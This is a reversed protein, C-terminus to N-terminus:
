SRGLFLEIGPTEAALRRLIPDLTERRVNLGEPLPEGGPESRPTIWGWRTWLETVHPRADAAELLPLLGLTKLVPMCSPQLTHTCTVKYADMGSRKELLAVRAGQSALLIASACGAVSAGVVVVDYDDTM